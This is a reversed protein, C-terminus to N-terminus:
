AVVEMPSEEISFVFGLRSGGNFLRSMASFCELLLGGVFHLLLIGSAKRGKGLRSLGDGRM